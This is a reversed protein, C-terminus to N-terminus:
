PASPSSIASRTAGIREPSSGWLGSDASSSPGGNNLQESTLRDNETSSRSSSTEPEVTLAPPIEDEDEEGLMLTIHAGDMPADALVEAVSLVQEKTIKKTRCMAICALAVIFDPDSLNEAAALPTIDGQSIQKVWRWERASLAQSFDLEYEGDYPKISAIIIKTEAAM